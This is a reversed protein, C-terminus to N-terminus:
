CELFSKLKLATSPHSMKRLSKAEIARVREQGINLSDAIQKLTYGEENKLNVDLTRKWSECSNVLAEIVGRSQRECAHMLPTMGKADQCNVDIVHGWNEGLVQVVEAVPLKNRGREITM